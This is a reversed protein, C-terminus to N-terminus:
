EDPQRAPSARRGVLALLRVQAPAGASAPVEPGFVGASRFGEVQPSLADLAALVDGPDLREDAGVARALDWTHIMTDVSVQTVYEAVTAAGFSLEVNRGEVGAPELAALVGDQAQSWSRVADPGIQDGAFRDGVEAITEGGLLPPIWLQEDLVHGVLDRVSWEVCPTGAEWQPGTVVALREAFGSAAREYFASLDSM